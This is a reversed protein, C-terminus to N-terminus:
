WWRLASVLSIKGKTHQFSKRLDIFRLIKILM